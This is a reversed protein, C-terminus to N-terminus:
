DTASVSSFGTERNRMRRGLMNLGRQFVPSAIFLDFDNGKDMLYINWAGWHMGSVVYYQVRDVSNKGMYIICALPLM